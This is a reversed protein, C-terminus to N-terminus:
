VSNEKEERETPVGQFISGIIFGIVAAVYKLFSLGFLWDFFFGVSFGSIAVILAGILADNM